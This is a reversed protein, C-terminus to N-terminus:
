AALKEARARRLDARYFPVHHGNIDHALALSIRLLAAATGISDESSDLHLRDMANDRAAALLPAWRERPCIDSAVLWRTMGDAQPPTPAGTSIDGEAGHRGAPALQTARDKLLGALEPLDAGLTCAIALWPRLHAEAQSRAMQRSQVVAAAKAARRRYEEAALQPLSLATM